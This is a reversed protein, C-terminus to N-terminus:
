LYEIAESFPHFDGDAAESASKWSEMLLLTGWPATYTRMRVANLAYAVLFM